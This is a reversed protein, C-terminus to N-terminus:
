TNEDFNLVIVNTIQLKQAYVSLFSDFDIHIYLVMRSELTKGECLCTWHPENDEQLIVLFLHM